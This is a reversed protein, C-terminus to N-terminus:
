HNQTRGAARSDDGRHQLTDEVHAFEAHRHLLRYVRRTKVVLPKGVHYKYLRSSERRFQDSGEFAFSVFYVLIESRNDSFDIGNKNTVSHEFPSRISAAIICGGSKLLCSM